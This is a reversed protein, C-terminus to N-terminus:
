LTMEEEIIEVGTQKLGKLAAETERVRNECPFTTPVWIHKPLRIATVPENVGMLVDAQTAVPIDRPNLGHRLAYIASHRQNGFMVYKM